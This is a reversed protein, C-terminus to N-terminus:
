AGYDVRSVREREKEREEKSSKEQNTQEANTASVQKTKWDAM